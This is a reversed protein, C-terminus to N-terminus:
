IRVPMAYAIFTGHALLLLAFMSGLVRPSLWYDWGPTVMEEDVSPADSSAAAAKTVAHKEADVNM